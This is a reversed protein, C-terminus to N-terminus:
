LLREIHQLEKIMGTVEELRKQVIARSEQCSHHAPDVRITLLDRIAELGFGLQRAFRIFKLRQLDNDSYLRFGGETRIEHGM